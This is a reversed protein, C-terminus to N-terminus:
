SYWVQICAYRCMCIYTLREECSRSEFKCLVLMHLKVMCVYMRICIYACLVFMELKVTRRWTSVNTAVSEEWTTCSVTGSSERAADGPMSCSAQYLESVQVHTRSHSLWTIACTNFMYVCACLYM